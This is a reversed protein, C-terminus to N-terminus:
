SFGLDVTSARLARLVPSRPNGTDGVPASAWSGFRNDFSDPRDPARMGNTPALPPPADLPFPMPIATNLSDPNNASDSLIEERVFAALKGANHEFKHEPTGQLTHHYGNSDIYNLVIHHGLTSGQYPVATANTYTLFIREPM